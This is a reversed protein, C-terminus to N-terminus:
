NIIKEQKAKQLAADNVPKAPKCDMWKGNMFHHDKDEMVREVSEECAFTLFGFGRSKLTNKDAM